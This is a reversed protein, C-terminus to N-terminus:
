WFLTYRDIISTKSVTFPTKAGGGPQKTSSSSSDSPLIERMPLHVTAFSNEAASPTEWSYYQNPMDAYDFSPQM